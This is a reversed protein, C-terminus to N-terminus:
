LHRQRRCQQRPPSGPTLKFVVGLPIGHIPCIPASSVASSPIGDVRRGCMPCYNAIPPAHSGTPLPTVTM